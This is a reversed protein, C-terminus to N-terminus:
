GCLNSSHPDDAELLPDILAAEEGPGPAVSFELPVPQIWPQKLAVYRSPIIVTRQMSHMMLSRGM